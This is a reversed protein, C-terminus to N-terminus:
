KTPWSISYLGFKKMSFSRSQDGRASVFLLPSKLQGYLNESEWEGVREWGRGSESEWERESKRETMRDRERVRERQWDIGREWEKERDSERARDWEKERVWEKEREREFKKVVKEQHCKSCNENQYRLQFTANQCISMNVYPGIYYKTLLIIKKDSPIHRQIHIWFCIECIDFMTM